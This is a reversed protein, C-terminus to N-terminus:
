EGERTNISDPQGHLNQYGSYPNPIYPFHDLQERENANAGDGLDQNPSEGNCDGLPTAGAIARLEIDAVDDILRRGNPFGDLDGGLLGARSQASVPLTPAISTNLRTMESPRGGKVQNLGEIGTLFIEVLDNRPGDVDPFCTFGGGPSYLEAALNDLDTNRVYKLFQADDRPESNNFRNKDRLPIVLENVLPQGLRSVQVWPGNHRQFGGNFGGGGRGTLVRTKRRYTTSYVGIVPQRRSERLERKPVQLAISNVNFGFTGNKGAAAELPIDHAANFPRLGGLDFFSGIDIPFAEDRQGAFVKGGGRLRRVGAQALRAYNDTTRPGVNNPPSPLNRGLVKRRGNKVKTVTYTQRINFNPDNLSTIPGTGYLFTDKNRIHTRFRFQYVIDDIADGDNDINIEYLVDEGFNYFNPGGAPEQFPIWNSILTVTNPKDPSVFAYVDTNDAVPDETILPAERHSSAGVSSLMSLGLAVTLGLAAFARWAFPRTQTM